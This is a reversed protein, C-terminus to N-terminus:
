RTATERVRYSRILFYLGVAIFPLSLLQGMHMFMTTEFASQVEKFYEIVFRAGFLLVLFWGFIRGQPLNEKHKSYIFWLVAFILIYAAAEYLQAPHRPLLDHRSFVVAWPVNTPAGLIESNMFNGMRIFAGALPIVLVIRDLIWMYSIDPRKRVYLWLGILIGAAGGHSALGGEWVKIIDIPHMLYYEPAYFLCHGLRAGIVTSLLMTVTLAEMDKESKGEKLFIRSIIQYGVVFGLAFLLGYWRLSIPGLEIIIPSPDWNIMSFIQM